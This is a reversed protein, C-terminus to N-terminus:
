HGASSQRGKLAKRNAPARRALAHKTRGKISAEHRGTRGKSHSSARGKPSPEHRGARAGSRSVARGRVVPEYRGARTKSRPIMRGKASAAPRGGHNKPRAIARTNALSSHLRKARVSDSRSLRPRGRVLTADAPPHRKPVTTRGARNRARPAAKQAPKVRSPVPKPSPKVLPSEPVALPEPPMEAGQPVIWLEVRRNKGRGGPYPKQGAFNRTVIRSSDIGKERILYRKINEARRIGLSPAEDKDTHGDIVLTAKPDQQLRLTVDDLIAKMVNDVRAGNPRFFLEREFKRPELRKLSYVTVTCSGSDSGGRGDRVTVAVTIPVPQGGPGSTVGTTDLVRENGQGALRGATASFSYELPDNDPDSAMAVVRVSEGDTIQGDVQPTGIVTCNVSQLRPPRNAPPPPPPPPPPAPATVRVRRSATDAGGRGDDVTVGVTVQVPSAGMRENLGSTDLTVTAETGTLRGASTTWTYILVDGDPDSARATFHIPEGSRVVDRDAELAVTPPHNPMPPAEPRAKRAFGLHVVFGNVDGHKVSFDQAGIGPVFIPLSSLEPSNLLRRWGGGMQFRGGGFFVRAGLLLDSPDLSNLNQTGGGVYLTNASEAVLVIREVPAIELALNGIFQDKRDLYRISDHGPDGSHIWGANGNVRIRGGAYNGGLMLIPGFDVEGSGRGNALGHFSRTTPIRVMGGLALSYHEGLDAVRLKTGLTVNGLGNSSRRIEFSRTAANFTATGFYPLDSFYNPRNAVFAPGFFAGPVPLIGGVPPSGFPFFGTGGTNIPQGLAALPDGGFASGIGSLQYGSLSLPQGSTVQQFVDLNGFVEWRNTLGYTINFPIQNIDLDGPDRDYNNWFVSVQWERRRLTRPSWTNFAGTSTGGIVTSTTQQAPDVKKEQGAAPNMVGTVLVSVLLIFARKSM